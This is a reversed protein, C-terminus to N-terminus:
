AKATHRDFNAKTVAAGFLFIQASYYIWFLLALFAGAAGLSSQTAERGLYLGILVKGVQFLVATLGAGFLVQRWSLPKAPLIKYIAAFLVAYLVFTVAYNLILLLTSGFPLLANIFETLAHLGAEVVLSVILLFGLGVVLALSALRARMMATLTGGEKKVGWIENLSDELELFVGSATLILTVTGIVTAWIGAAPKSASVLVNELIDAGSSGLLGDFQAFVAGRAAEDGFVLGATAIVILLVPALSTITYFAIAGGRSPGKAAMFIKASQKLLSVLGAFSTVRGGGPQAKATAPM